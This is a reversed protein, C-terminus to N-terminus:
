KIFNAYAECENSVEKQIEASTKATFEAFLNAAQAESEMFSEGYINSIHFVKLEQAGLSAAILSAQRTTLHKKAFAKDQHITQYNCECVLTSIQSGLKKLRAINQASFVIDTIYGLSPGPRFSLIKKALESAEFPHAGGADIMSNQGGNSIQRQLEGLWPGPALGLPILNETIVHSTDPLRLVFACVPMGHDLTIADILYKGHLIQVRAVGEPTNTTDIASPIQVPIFDNTNTVRWSKLTGKTSVEHIIFNVQDPELLNWTYSAIKGLINKLIGDPGIVELTRFHPVNVRLLKDFGQFHDLHTHSVCVTRIKLLERNSLAELLGADFLIADGSQPLSVYVAPDGNLGNVLKFALNTTM